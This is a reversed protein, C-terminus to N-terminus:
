VIYMVAMVGLSTWDVLQDWLLLIALVVGLFPLIVGTLNLAQHARSVGTPRGTLAASTGSLDRCRARGIRTAEHYIAVSVGGAASASRPVSGSRASSMM